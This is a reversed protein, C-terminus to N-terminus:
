ANHSNRCARVRTVFAVLWGQGQGIEAYIQARTPSTENDMAQVDAGDSESGADESLQMQQQSKGGQEPKDHTTGQILRKSTVETTRSRVSTRALAYKSGFIKRGIGALMQERTPLQANHHAASGAPPLKAGPLPRNLPSAASPVPSSPSETSAVATTTFPSSVEGMRPLASAGDSLTTSSSAGPERVVVDDRSDHMALM